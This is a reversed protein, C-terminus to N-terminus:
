LAVGTMIAGQILSYQVACFTLIREQPAIHRLELKVIECDGEGLTMPNRGHPGPRSSSPVPFTGFNAKM